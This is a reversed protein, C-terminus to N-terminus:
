NFLSVYLQMITLVTEAMELEQEKREIDSRDAGSIRLVEVQNAVRCARKVLNYSISQKDNTQVAFYTRTNHFNNFCVVPYERKNVEDECSFQGTFREIPPCQVDGMNPPNWSKGSGIIGVLMNNSFTSDHFPNNVLGLAFSMGIYQLFPHWSPEIPDLNAGTPCQGNQDLPQTCRKFVLNSNPNWINGLGQTLFETSDETFLDHFNTYHWNIMNNYFGWSRAYLALMAIWKDYLTGIRRYRFDAVGFYGDQLSSYFFRGQGFKVDHRRTHDDPESPYREWMGSIKDKRHLGVEPTTLTRMFFGYSAQVAKLKDEFDATQQYGPQTTLRHAWDQYIIAMHQARRLFRGVPANPWFARRGRRWYNLPYTRDHSIIHYKVIEEATHGSDWLQCFADQGVFYDSCYRFPRLRLPDAPDQSRREVDMSWKILEGEERPDNVAKEVLGGYIFALAARDSKSVGIHDNYMEGVYDMVSATRFFQPDMKAPDCAAGSLSCKNPTKGEKLDHYANHYNYEDSSGKFNHMLGLTHGLEHATLSLFMFQILDKRV